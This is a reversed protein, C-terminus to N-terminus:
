NVVVGALVALDFLLGAALKPDIGSEGYAAQQAVAAKILESKASAAIRRQRLASQDLADARRYKLLEAPIRGANWSELYAALACDVNPMVCARTPRGRLALEADALGGLESAYANFRRRAIAALNRRIALQEAAGARGRNIIAKAALRWQVTRADPNAADALGALAGIVAWTAEIKEATPSRNGEACTAPDTRCAEAALLEDVLAAAKEFGAANALPAGQALFDLLKARIAAVDVAAGEKVLREAAEIEAILQRAFQDPEKETKEEELIMEDYVDKIRGGSVAVLPLASRASTSDSEMKPEDTLADSPCKQKTSDSEQKTSDSEMKLEDTLADSACKQKWCFEIIYAYPDSDSTKEGLKDCATSRQDESTRSAEFNLRAFDLADATREIELTRDRLTEPLDRYKVLKADAVCSSSSLQCTGGAVAKWRWDTFMRLTGREDPAGNLIETFEFDRQAVYEEALARQQREAFEALRIAQADYAGLFPADALAVSVKAADQQLGDDHFYLTGCGSSALGFLVSALRRSIGNM